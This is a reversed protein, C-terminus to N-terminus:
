SSCNREHVIRLGRLTLQDDVHEITSTLKEMLAALGGTAWVACPFGLELRIKSVMGDVLSAYGFVIGSQMSQTTNRGVVRPPVALEVRTLRAARMYLAEASIQIGPCIAGGLYEGKNSVCDFTTATGFDVVIVGAKVTEFAALANIIRDAGVERPNDCLVPMGTRTGPGVVVPEDDCYRRAFGIVTDTLPPVVSATVVASISRFDMGRLSIMQLVFVALEDATRGVVSACRFHYVLEDGDFLGFYINTNGVDIALLM